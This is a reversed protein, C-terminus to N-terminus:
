KKEPIEKQKNNIKLEVDQKVCKIQLSKSNNIHNIKLTIGDSNPNLAKNTSSDPLIANHKFVITTDGSLINQDFYNPSGVTNEILFGLLSLICIAVIRDM